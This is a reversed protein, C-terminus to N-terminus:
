EAHIGRWIRWWYEGASIMEATFTTRAVRLAYVKKKLVEVEAYMRSFPVYLGESMNPPTKASLSRRWSVHVTLDTLHTYWDKLDPMADQAEEVEGLYYYEQFGTVHIHLTLQYIHALHNKFELPYPLRDPSDQTPFVPAFSFNNTRIVAEELVGSLAESPQCEKGDIEVSPPHSLLQKAEKKVMDMNWKFDDRHSKANVLRFIKLLLENPLKLLCRSLMPWDKEAEAIATQYSKYQVRRKLQREHELKQYPELEEEVEAIERETQRRLRRCAKPRSSAIMDDKGIKFRYSWLKDIKRRLPEIHQGFPDNTEETPAHLHIRAMRPPTPLTFHPHGTTHTRKSDENPM